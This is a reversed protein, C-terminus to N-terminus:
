LLPLNDKPIGYGDDRIKIKEFTKNGELIVQISKAKADISNEILEKVILVPNVIVQESGIRNYNHESLIKIPRPRDQIINEM